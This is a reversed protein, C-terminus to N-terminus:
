GVLVADAKGPGHHRQLEGAPGHAEGQQLRDGRDPAAPQEHGDDVSQGRRPLFAATECTRRASVRSFLDASM